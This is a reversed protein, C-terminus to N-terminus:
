WCCDDPNEEDECWFELLPIPPQLALLLPTPLKFSLQLENGIFVGGEIVGDGKGLGLEACGGETGAKDSGVMGVRLGWCGGECGGGVGCESSMFIGRVGESNWPGRDTEEVEFWTLINSNFIESRPKIRRKWSHVQHTNYGREKVTIAYIKTFYTTVHIGDDRASKNEMGKPAWYLSGRCYWARQYWYVWYHVVLASDMIETAIQRFAKAICSWVAM